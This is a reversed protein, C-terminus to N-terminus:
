PHLASAIIKMGVLAGITGFLNTLATILLIKSVRNKWLGKMTGLDDMITELDSVRPKRILAEVLGAVWGSALLPHLTTIPAAVFASIITLPHALCVASGLAASIGTVLIWSIAMNMSTNAGSQFFGYIMLGIVIAPIIWGVLRWFVGPPPLEELKTLNIEKGIWNKIGPVHGAGVVAVVVTGPAEAIKASLYQDREDILTSRVEPLEKSFESMLEDLADSSKLREIEDKDFDQENITGVLGSWFLKIMSWVGIAAWTRKLTVTVDRDALIVAVKSDEALTVAEMMEAGPKTHLKDGLRKQFSALMLQAMLVYVKGKKIVSLIDMNKWRDPNKLSQFRSDCLEVAISDPKVEEITRKVLEKSSESVHATGVLYIKKDGLSILDVNDQYTSIETTM